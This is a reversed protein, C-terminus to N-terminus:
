SVVGCAKLLTQIEPTEVPINVVVPGHSTPIEAMFDQVAGVPLIQRGLSRNINQMATAMGRVFADASGADRTASNQSKPLITLVALKNIYDQAVMMAPTPAGGNIRVTGAVANNSVVDGLYSLTTTDLNITPKGEADVILVTFVATGERCTGTIEAHIGRENTHSTTVSVDPRGRVANPTSTVTWGDPSMQDALYQTLYPTGFLLAAAAIVCLAIVDFTRM